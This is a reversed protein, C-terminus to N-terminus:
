RTLVRSPPTAKRINAHRLAQPPVVWPPVRLPQVDLRWELGICRKANALNATIQKENVMMAASLAASAFLAIKRELGNACVKSHSNLGELYVSNNQYNL